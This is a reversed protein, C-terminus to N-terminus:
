RLIKKGQKLIIGKASPTGALARGQLDRAMCDAGKSTPQAPSVVGALIEDLAKWESREIKAVQEYEGDIGDEYSQSFLFHDCSTWDGYTADYHYEWKRGMRRSLTEPNDRDATIAVEHMTHNGHADYRDTASEVMTLLREGNEVRYTRVVESASGYADLMTVTNTKVLMGGSVLTTAVYSGDPQYDVTLDYEYGYYDDYVHASKIRNKGSFCKNIDMVQNDCAEWQINTWEQYKQLYAEETVPNYMYNQHLFGALRDGEYTLTKVYSNPIDPTSEDAPTYDAIRTIRGQEDRDIRTKTAVYRLWEGDVSNLGIHLVCTDRLVEDYEYTDDTYLILSGSQAGRYDQSAVVRGLDDYEYTISDVVGENFNQRVIIRGNEDYQYRTKLAVESYKGRVFYETEQLPLYKQAHVACAAFATIPLLLLRNMLM